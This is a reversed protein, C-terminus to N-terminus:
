LVKEAFPMIRLLSSRTHLIHVTRCNHFAFFLSSFQLKKLADCDAYFANPVRSLNQWKSSPRVCTYYVCRLTLGMNVCM